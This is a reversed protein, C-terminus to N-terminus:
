VHTSYLREGSATEYLIRVLGRTRAEQGLAILAPRSRSWQLEEAIEREDPPSGLLEELNAVAAAFAVTDPVEGESGRILRRVPLVRM